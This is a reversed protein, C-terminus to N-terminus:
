DKNYYVEGGSVSFHVPETFYYDGYMDYIVFCYTYEDDSLLAFQPQDGEAYTYAEGTYTSGEGTNQNYVEYLPVIKDGPQLQTMRGSMGSAGIGDWVGNISIEGNAYDNTFVLNTREGNLEIPAVYVDTDDSQTWVYVALNQGDPLSFWYGDFNDSFTGTEWDPFIDASEGLTIYNGTGETYEDVYASVRIANDLGEQSLKFTYIGDEDVRPETDFTILPSEGTQHSEDYYEWYDSGAYDRGTWGSLVAGDDYASIDGANAAAYAMIDVFALYYPSVAINSFTKLEASGGIHIPYYVTLGSANEHVPGNVSYVVANRLAQRVSSAKDSYKSCSDVLGGLDVMNTFGVAANNGGFRETQLADRIVGDMQETKDVTNYLDRSFANFSTVVEDIRSLDVVSMTPTDGDGQENVCLEYYSDAVAKGLQAGDATPHEKLFRGMATYDMGCGPVAEESAYMYYAHSALINATEFSSMLCADFAVFEFNYEMYPNVSLLAEDISRLSLSHEDHTEDFCVGSISGGGHNWFVLGMNSAPYEKVGWELFDSLSKADGMDGTPQEDVLTAKGNCIEIRDFHEADCLENHWENSGGTQVIFKINEDTYAELMQQMDDTGGYSESELNSGCLYVFITWTGDNVKTSKDIRTPRDIKLDGNEDLALRMSSDVGARKPQHSVSSTKAPAGSSSEQVPEDSVDAGAGCATLLLALGILLATVKSHTRM